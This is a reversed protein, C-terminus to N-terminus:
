SQVWKAKTYLCTWTKEATWLQRALITYISVWQQVDTQNSDVVRNTPLFDSRPVYTPIFENLKHVNPQYSM